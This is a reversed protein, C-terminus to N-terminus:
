ASPKINAPFLYDLIDKKHQPSEISANQHERDSGDFTSNHESPCEIQIVKADADDKFEALEADIAAIRAVM